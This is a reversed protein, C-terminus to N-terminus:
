EHSDRPPQFQLAADIEDPAYKHLWHGKIAMRWRAADRADDTLTVAQQAPAALYLAEGAPNGRNDKFRDDADRYAWEDGSGSLNPARWAVVEGADSARARMGAAIDCEDNACLVGDQAAAECKFPSCAIPAESARAPQQTPAALLARAQNIEQTFAGDVYCRDEPANNQADDYIDVIAACIAHWDVPEGRAADAVPAQEAAKPATALLSRVFAIVRKYETDGVQYVFKTWIQDDTLGSPAADNETTM